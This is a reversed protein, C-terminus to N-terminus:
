ACGGLASSHRAPPLLRIGSSDPAQDESNTIYIYTFRDDYFTTPEKKIGQFLFDALIGGFFVPLFHRIRSSKGCKINVACLLHVFYRSESMRRIYFRSLNKPPFEAHFGYEIGAIIFDSGLSRRFIRRFGEHLCYRKGSAYPLRINMCNGSRLGLDIRVACVTVTHEGKTHM